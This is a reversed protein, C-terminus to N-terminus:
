RDIAATPSRDFRGGAALARTWALWCEKIVNFDCFSENM